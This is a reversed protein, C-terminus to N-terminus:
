VARERLFKPARNAGQAILAARFEQTFGVVPTANMALPLHVKIRIAVRPANRVRHPEQALFFARRAASVPVIKNLRARQAVLLEM